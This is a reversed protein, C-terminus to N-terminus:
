PSMLPLSLETRTASRGSVIRLCRAEFPARCDPQVIPYAAYHTHLSQSPGRSLYFAVSLSLLPLYIAVVLLPFQLRSARVAFEGTASGDESDPLHLIECNV